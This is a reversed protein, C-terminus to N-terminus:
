SFRRSHDYKEYAVGFNSCRIQYVEDLDEYKTLDYRVGTVAFARDGAKDRAEKLEEVTRTDEAEMDLIRARRRAAIQGRTAM